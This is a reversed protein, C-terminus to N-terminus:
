RTSLSDLPQSPLRSFTERSPLMTLRFTEQYLRTGPERIGVRPGVFKCAPESLAEQHFDWVQLFPDLCLRSYTLDLRTVERSM